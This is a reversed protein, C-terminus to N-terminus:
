DGSTLVKDLVKSITDSGFGRQSLYGYMKGKLKYFDTEKKRYSELKKFAAEECNHLEEEDSYNDEITKAITENDIGKMRLAQSIYRPGKKSFKKKDKVFAEALKEDDLYRYDKLKILAYDIAEESYEKQRLKDKLAKEFYNQRGLLKIGDNLCKNQEEKKLIEELAKEDVAIGKKLGLQILTEESIGCFFEDELFLNYRGQTKQATIKTIIKM